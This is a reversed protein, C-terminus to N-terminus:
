SSQIATLNGRDSRERAIVLPLSFGTMRFAAEVFSGQLIERISCVATVPLDKSLEVEFLDEPHGKEM